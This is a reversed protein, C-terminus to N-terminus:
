VAKAGTTPNTTVAPRELAYRSRERLAPGFKFLVLPIPMMVLALFGLLSSAWRPDLTDYMQAAFLPFGAGFFSRVVTNAALASAAFFLYSDIIYSYLALFIWVISFGLLGGALMPAWFSVHPYSTWGFWFFSVAFLPGAWMAQELRYEPPVPNPAHQQMLREYRPNWLLLYGIVGLSCGVFIPLYMLGTIGANMHHGITFVIPYAEFLLYIVGYVFSMYFTLAVLMPERYLLAFPTGVVKQVSLKLSTSKKNLPAWYRDDGTNKRLKKAKRALLIPSYTEPITIIILVACAGAFITTVWYVWRWSTGSVAIFGSITPAVSPGAFPTLTYVSFAKGRTKADWIDSTLAGTIVLGSAAFTGSLFRFILISATNPSLACGVSFGTYAIFTLVLPGKRGFQESLPGWLLPGVSYGAVFLAITLTAVERGFGFQTMMQPVVGAPISSAFTVNFALLGAVSTIYWRKARSWNLPSDPDEPAFRVEFQSLDEKEAKRISQRGLLTTDDSSSDSLM